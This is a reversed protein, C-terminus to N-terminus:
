ERWIGLRLWESLALTRNSTQTIHNISSFFLMLVTNIMKGFCQKLLVSNFRAAFMSYRLINYTMLSIVQTVMRIASPVNCIYSILFTKTVQFKIANHWMNEWLFSENLLQLLYGPRYWQYRYASLGCTEARDLVSDCVCGAWFYQPYNKVFDRM